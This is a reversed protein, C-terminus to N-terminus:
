TSVRAAERKMYGKRVKKPPSSQLTTEENPSLMELRNVYSSSPTAEKSGVSSTRFPTPPVAHITPCADPNLTIKKPKRGMQDM